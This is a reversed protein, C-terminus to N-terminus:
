SLLKGAVPIWEQLHWNVLNNKIMPDKKIISQAEDYSNAKIVLVGGGGPKKEADVLYGSSLNEGSAQLKEVWQKHAALHAHLQKAPLCLTEKTFRETKIFLPM